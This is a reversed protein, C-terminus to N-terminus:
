GRHARVHLAHHLSQRPYPPWRGCPCCPAFAADLWGCALQHVGTLGASMSGRAALAVPATADLSDLPETLPQLISVPELQLTGRGMTLM